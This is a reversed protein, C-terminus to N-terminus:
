DLNLTMETKRYKRYGDNTDRYYFRVVFLKQVNKDTVCKKYTQCLMEPFNRKIVKDDHGIEQIKNAQQETSVVLQVYM